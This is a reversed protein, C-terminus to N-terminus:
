LGCKINHIHQQLLQGEAELNKQNSEKSSKNSSDSDEDGSRDGAERLNDDDGDNEDSNRSEEGGGVMRTRAKKQESPFNGEMEVMGLKHCQDCLRKKNHCAQKEEGDLFDSLPQKQCQPHNLYWQM